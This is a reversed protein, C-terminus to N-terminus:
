TSQMYEHEKVLDMADAPLLLLYKSSSLSPPDADFLYSPSPNPKLFLQGGGSIGV